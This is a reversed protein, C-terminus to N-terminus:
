VGSALQMESRKLLELWIYDVSSVDLGIWNILLM